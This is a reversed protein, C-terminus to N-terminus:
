LQVINRLGKHTAEPVKAVTTQMYETLYSYSSADYDWYMAGRGAYKQLLTRYVWPGVSGPQDLTWEETRHYLGGGSAGSYQLSRTLLQCLDHSDTEAELPCRYLELYFGSNESQCHWHVNVQYLVKSDPSKLTM